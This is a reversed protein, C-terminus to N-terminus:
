GQKSLFDGLSKVAKDGWHLKERVFGEQAYQVKEEASLKNWYVKADASSGLATYLASAFANCETETPFRNLTRQLYAVAEPGRSTELLTMSYRLWWPLADRDASSIVKEFLVSAAAWSGRLSLAVAQNTLITPQPGALLEALDLDRTAQESDGLSLEIAAKNLIITSLTGRPPRLSIAKKYCLLAEDLDGTVVLVNGLNSWAYIFDPETSLVEEYFAQAEKYDGDSMTQLGKMFIRSAEGDIVTKGEPPLTMEFEDAIFMSGMVVSTAEARAQLPMSVMSLVFPSLMGVLVSAAAARRKSGARPAEPREPGDSRVRLSSSSGVRRIMGSRLPFALCLAMCCLAWLAHLARAM